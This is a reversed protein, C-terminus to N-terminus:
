YNMMKVTAADTVCCLLYRVKIPFMAYCLVSCHVNNRLQLSALFEFKSLYFM